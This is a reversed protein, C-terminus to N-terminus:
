RILAFGLGPQEAEYFKAAARLEEQAEALFRLRSMRPQQLNAIEPLSGREEAV